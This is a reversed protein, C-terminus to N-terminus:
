YYTCLIEGFKYHNILNFLFDLINNICSIHVFSILYLICHELRVMIIRRSFFLILCYMDLFIPFYLQNNYILHNQLVQIFPLFLISGLFAILLLHLSNIFMKPLTLNSYQFIFQLPHKWCQKHHKYIWLIPTICNNKCHYVLNFSLHLLRFHIKLHHSNLNLYSLLWSYMWNMSQLM